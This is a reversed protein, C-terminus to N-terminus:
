SATAIGRCPPCWATPSHSSRRTRFADMEANLAIAMSMAEAAAPSEVDVTRSPTRESAIPPQRGPSNGATDPICFDKPAKLAQRPTVTVQRDEGLEPCLEPVLTRAAALPEVTQVCRRYPSTLIRDIPLDALEQVLRRAQDVGREDLGRDRDDGEWESRSGASGHRVLLLPM